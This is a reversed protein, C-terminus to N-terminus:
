ITRISLEIVLKGRVLCTFSNFGTHLVWEPRSLRKSYFILILVGMAPARGPKHLCILYSHLNNMILPASLTPEVLSFGWTLM